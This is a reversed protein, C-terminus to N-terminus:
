APLGKKAPAAAVRVTAEFGLSRRVLYLPRQKVEEYIKGIYLGIIGLLILQLGGVISVMMIVSTWGPIIVQTNTIISYAVWGMYLFGFLAMMVGAYIGVHLPITSFSIIADAAFTLMRRWNYKSVGKHRAAAVYPVGIAKFGVWSTLGRMFRSRERIQCFADVVKRDLLRFDAANAPLDIGTLRNFLRYFGASTVRKLWGADETAERITYVVEYGERWRAVLTEILEPPHQLDADMVIAADGTAHDLGATLALQHGFNRSFSILKVRPDEAHLEAIAEASGDTSGDDVFLIELELALARGVAVLRDYLPRLNEAENMLPIILSLRTPNMETM